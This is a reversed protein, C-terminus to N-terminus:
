SKPADFETVTQAENDLLMFMEFYQFTPAAGTRQEVMRCWADDHAAQAHAKSPWIYVGGGLPGGAADSGRIYHKRVLDQDAQWRPLTARAMEREAEPTLGAPTKFLVLEVIM